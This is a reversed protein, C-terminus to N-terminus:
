FLLSYSVLHNGFPLVGFEIHKNKGDEEMYGNIVKKFLFFFFLIPDFGVVSTLLMSFVDSRTTHVMEVLLFSLM